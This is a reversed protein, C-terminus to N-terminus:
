LFVTLSPVGSTPSAGEVGLFPIFKDRVAADIYMINRRTGIVSTATPATALPVAKAFVDLIALRGMKILGICPYQAGEREPLTFLTGASAPIYRLYSTYDVPQPAYYEPLQGGLRASDASQATKDLKNNLRAKLDAWLQRIGNLDIFGM